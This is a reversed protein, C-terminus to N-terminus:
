LQDAWAVAHQCIAMLFIRVAWQRRSRLRAHELHFDIKKRKHSREVAPRKKYEQKRAPSDRPPNTFLRPDDAPKTFFVRGYASPSCLCPEPEDYVARPCRWKLRCRDPCFGNYVMEEGAPCYPTGAADTTFHSPLQPHGTNRENLAIFPTIEFASLLAYFPYNDHASDGLFRAFSLEPYLKCARETAKVAPLSDHERAQALQIFIPLDHPSDAATLEYVAHGFVYRERYSDWGWTAFRDAYRRPCTCRYVGHRRCDCIKRGTSRAGTVCKTGDGAVSLAQVDGLLGLEASRLVVPKLLLNLRLAPFRSLPADLRQLAKTVLQKVRGPRAHGNREAGKPKTLPTRLVPSTEEPYLRAAFDYFTGVGPPREAFGSLIAFLPQSRLKEVWKTFSLTEATLTMCLLSRLRVVQERPPTGRPKPSYLAHLQPRLPELDLLCLALISDAYPALKEQDERTPYCRLLERRVRKLYRKHEPALSIKHRRYFKIVDHYTKVIDM